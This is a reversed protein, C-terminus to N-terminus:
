FDFLFFVGLNKCLEFNYRRSKKNKKNHKKLRTLHNEAKEIKKKVLQKEIKCSLYMQRISAHVSLAEEVIQKYNVTKDFKPKPINSFIREKDEMFPM